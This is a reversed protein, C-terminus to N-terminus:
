TWPNPSGPRLAAWEQARLARYEPMDHLRTRQRDIAREGRRLASRVADESARMRAALAGYTLGEVYRAYLVASTDPTALEGVLRLAEVVEMDHARERAHMGREIEDARAILAAAKDEVAGHGQADPSRTIRTAADRIQRRRLRLRDMDRAYSACRRLVDMGTMM